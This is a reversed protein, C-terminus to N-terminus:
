NHLVNINLGRRREEEHNKWLASADFAKELDCDELEVFTVVTGSHLIDKQGLDPDWVCSM